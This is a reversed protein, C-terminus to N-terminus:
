SGQGYVSRLKAVHGEYTVSCHYTKDPAHFYFLCDTAIPNLAAVIAQVSPSAIPAPPLGDHLYTNYASQLKKDAPHVPPWWTASSPQNAKAYQLTADLQLPMNIFLRNWIVGSIQQMNEFDSAERELLSAIILADRLPVKSAVAPSYREAVESKFVDYVLQHLEEPTTNRHTVYRGPFYKGESIIPYSNDMLEIFRARDDDSWRLVDGINKAVEEKRQGPWIVAIRAVPSAFNQFWTQGILKGALKEWLEHSPSPSKVLTRLQAQVEPSPPNITKTQPNVSIPFTDIPQDNKVSIPSLASQYFFVKIQSLTATALVLLACFILTSGYALRFLFKENSM